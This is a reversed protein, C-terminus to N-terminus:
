DHMEALRQRARQSGLEAAKRYWIRAQERDPQVSRADRKGLVDPDYTRALLLAADGDRADAARELLLRASVIDGIDLLSTARKLLASIEDADLHRAPPAAPPTAPQPAPVPPEAQELRVASQNRIAERHAAAIQERTPGSETVPPLEVPARPPEVMATASEVSSTAAAAATAPIVDRTTVYFLAAGIAAVSAAAIGIKFILARSVTRIPEPAGEELGNEVSSSSLFLPVPEDASDVVSPRPRKYRYPAFEPDNIDAIKASNRQAVSRGLASREAM